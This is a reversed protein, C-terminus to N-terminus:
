LKRSIKTEVKGPLLIDASANFKKVNTFTHITPIIFQMFVQKTKFHM